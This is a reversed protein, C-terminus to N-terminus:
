LDGDDYYLFRCQIDNNIKIHITKTILMKDDNLRFYM